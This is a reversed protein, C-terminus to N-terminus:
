INHQRTNSTVIDGFPSRSNKVWGRSRLKVSGELDVNTLRVQETRCALHEIMKIILTESYRFCFFSCTAERQM